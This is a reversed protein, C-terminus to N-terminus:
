SQCGAQLLRADETDAAWGAAEEVGEEMAPGLFRLLTGLVCHRRPVFRLCSQGTSAVQFVTPPCGAVALFRMNRCGLETNGLEVGKARRLVTQGTTSRPWRGDLARQTAALTRGRGRPLHLEAGM